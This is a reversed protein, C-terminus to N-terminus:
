GGIGVAWLELSGIFDVALFAIATMVPTTQPLTSFKATTEAPISSYGSGGPVSEDDISSNRRTM